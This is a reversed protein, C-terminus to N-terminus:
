RKGAADSLYLWACGAVVMAQVGAVSPDHPLLTYKGGDMRSWTTSKSGTTPTYPIGQTDIAPVVAQVRAM